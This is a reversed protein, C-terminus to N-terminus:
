LDGTLSRIILPLDAKRIRLKRGDAPDREITIKGQRALEYLKRGVVHRGYGSEDGIFRIAETKTVYGDSM